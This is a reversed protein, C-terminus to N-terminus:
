HLINVARAAVVAVTVLAVISQAGLLAKARGTLPLADTPGFCTGNTLAVYAYDIFGPLWNKPALQPNEMQPFQLDFTGERSTGRVMPGGRDLEWLWLAFVVVNTFWISVASYILSRGQEIHGHLLHRVLMFMSTANAVSVIAIALMTVKRIWPQEAEHRKTKLSLPVLLAGVLTPM